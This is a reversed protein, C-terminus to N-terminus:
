LEKLWNLAAEETSFVKRKTKGRSDEAFLISYATLNPKDVIFATKVTRYFTTAKDTLESIIAIDKGTLLMKANGFDHLTMLNQPLYNIKEFDQLYEKIDELSVTESFQVYFIGDNNLSYNIM